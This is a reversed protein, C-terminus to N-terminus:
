ISKTSEEIAEQELTENYFEEVDDSDDDHRVSQYASHYDCVLFSLRSHEELNAHYKMPDVEEFPDLCHLNSGEMAHTIGAGNWGNLILGRGKEILYDYSQVVWSAHLPKLASLRFPIEINMYNVGQNLAIGIEESYWINLKNKMFGKAPSNVTLDAPQYKNTM